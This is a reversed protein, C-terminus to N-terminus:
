RIGQMPNYNVCGKTGMLPVNPFAGCRYLVNPMEEWRPFRCITSSSMSALLEEWNIKSKDPAVCFDELPFTPRGNHMVFHSVMWVYLTPLCCIVRTNKKEWSLDLTCYVDALIAVM